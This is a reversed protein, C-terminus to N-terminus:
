LQRLLARSEGDLGDLRSPDTFEESTSRKIRALMIATAAARRSMQGRIFMVISALAVLGGVATRALPELHHAQDPTLLGEMVLISMVLGILSAWLESTKWVSKM